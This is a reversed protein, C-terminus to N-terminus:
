RERLDRLADTLRNARIEAFAAAEQEPVEGGDGARRYHEEALAIIGEIQHDIAAGWHDDPVPAGTILYGGVVLTVPVAFGTEALDMLWEITPDREDGAALAALDLESDSAM